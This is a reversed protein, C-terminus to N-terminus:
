HFERRQLEGLKSLPPYGVVREVRPSLEVSAM